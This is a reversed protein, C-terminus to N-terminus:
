ILRKHFADKFMTWLNGIPNLDPSQAPWKMTPARKKKLFQTVKTATHCPANDHMFLFADSTAVKIADSGASPTFLEDVFSVLGNESIELYQDPSRM